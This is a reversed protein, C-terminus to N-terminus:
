SVEPPILEKNKITVEGAGGNRTLSIQNYELGYVTQPDNVNQKPRHTTFVYYISDSGPKPVILVPMTYGVFGHLGDGNAMIQAQTNYVRIGDSYLLVKGTSDAMVAASTPVNIIFNNLDNVPDQPRFDLGANQGFFWRDAEHNAVACNTSRVEAKLYGQSM